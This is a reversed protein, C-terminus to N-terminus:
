PLKLDFPKKPTPIGNIVIMEEEYAGVNQKIFAKDLANSGDTKVGEGKVVEGELRARAINSMNTMLRRQNSCLTWCAVTECGGPERVLYGNKFAVNPEAPILPKGGNWDRKFCDEPIPKIGQEAMEMLSAPYPWYIAMQNKGGCEPCPCPPVNYIFTCDPAYANVAGLPASKLLPNGLFDECKPMYGPASNPDVKM